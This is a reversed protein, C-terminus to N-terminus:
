FGVVTFAIHGVKFGVDEMDAGYVELLGGVTVFGEKYLAEFLEDDLELNTLPLSSLSYRAEQSVSVLRRSLLIIAGSGSGWSRGKRWRGWWRGGWGRSFILITKM